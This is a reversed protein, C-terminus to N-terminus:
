GKKQRDIAARRQGILIAAAIGLGGGIGGKTIIAPLNFLTNMLGIMIGMIVGAGILILFIEGWGRIKTVNKM